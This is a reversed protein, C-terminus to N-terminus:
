KSEPQLMEFTRLFFETVEHAIKKWYNALM